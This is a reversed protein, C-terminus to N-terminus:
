KVKMNVDGTARWKCFFSGRVGRSGRISTKAEGGLRNAQVAFKLRWNMQADACASSYLAGM